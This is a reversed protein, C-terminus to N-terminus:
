PVVSVSDEIPLAVVSVDGEADTLRLVYRIVATEDPIECSGLLCRLGEFDHDCALRFSGDVTVGDEGIVPAVVVCVTESSLVEPGTVEDLRVYEATVRGSAAGSLDATIRITEPDGLYISTPSAGFDAAAPLEVVLVDIQSASEDNTAVARLCRNTTVDKLEELGVDEDEVFVEYSASSLASCRGTVPVTRTGLWSTTAGSFSWGVFLDGTPVEVRGSLADIGNVLLEDVSAGVFVTSSSSTAGFDNGVTLTFTTTAGIPVEVSDALPSLDSTDVDIGDDAAEIALTEAGTTVWSLVAVEDAGGALLTASFETIEPPDGVAITVTEPRSAAGAPGLATLTLSLEDAVADDRVRLACGGAGGSDVRVCKGLESTELASAPDAAVSVSTSYETEWALAFTGGRAVYEVPDGVDDVALLSSVEPRRVVGFSASASSSEGHATVRFCAHGQLDRLVVTQPGGVAISGPLGPDSFWVIDAGTCRGSVPVARQISGTLADEIAVTLNAAPSTVIATAVRLDTAGITLQTIRPQTDLTVQAEAIGVGFDNEAVFRFTTPEDVRPISVSGNEATCPESSCPATSGPLTLVVSAVDDTIAELTAAHASPATWDVSVPSGASSPIVDPTVVLEVAPPHGVMVSTENQISATGAATYAVLRLAISAPPTSAGVRVDCTGTGTAPEIRTCAALQATDVYGAQAPSVLGVSVRTAASSSWSLSMVDGPAVTDDAAFFGDVAPRQEALLTRLAAPYGPGEAALRLCAPEDLGSLELSGSRLLDDALTVWPLSSAQCGSPTWPTRQIVVTDANATEWSLLGSAGALAARGGDAVVQGDVAVATFRPGDAGLVSAIDSTVGFDNSATLTWTRPATLYGVVYRDAAAECTAELLGGVCAADGTGMATDVVRPGADAHIIVQEAGETVWSLSVLDGERSLIPPAADLNAVPPHGVTVVVEYPDSRAGTPGVAVVNLTVELAGDPDGAIATLECAGTQGLEEACSALAPQSLAGPPDVELEVAEANVIQWSLVLKGGQQVTDDDVGATVVRPPPTTAFAALDERGLAGVARVRFCTAVDLGDLGFAHEGGLVNARTSWTAGLDECEGERPAAAEVIVREAATATWALEASVSEVLLLGAAPEGDLTLSTIRPGDATEVALAAHAEGFDNAVTLRWATTGGVTLSASDAAPECLAPDEGGPCAVLDGGPLDGILTRPEPTVEELVVVDAGVAAWSLTVAGGESPVAVPAVEAELEPALGVDVALTRLASAGGRPGLAAAALTYRGVPTSRPISLTCAGRGSRPDVATCGAFASDALLGAPETGVIVSVSRATEWALVIESGPAVTDDSAEFVVLEPAGSPALRLEVAGLALAGRGDAAGNDGTVVVTASARLDPLVVEGTQSAGLEALRCRAEGVAPSPADAAACPRLVLRGDAVGLTGVSWTEADRIDYSVTVDAGLTVERLAADLTATVPPRVEVRTTAEVCAADTTCDVGEPGARLTYETTADLSVTHSGRRVCPDDAGPVACAGLPVPVGDALLAVSGAGATTWSLTAAGLLTDGAQDLGATVSPLDTAFTLIQLSPAPLGGPDTDSACASLTLLACLAIRRTLRPM